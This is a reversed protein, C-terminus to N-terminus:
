FYRSVFIHVQTVIQSIIFYNLQYSGNNAAHAFACSNGHCVEDFGTTTVVPDGVSVVPAVVACFTVVAGATLTGLLTVSLSSDTSMLSWHVEPHTTNKEKIKKLLM